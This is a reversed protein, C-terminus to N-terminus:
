FTVIIAVVHSVQYIMFLLELVLSCKCFNSHVNINVDNGNTPGPNSELDGCLLIRSWLYM